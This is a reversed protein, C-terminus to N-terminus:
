NLCCREKKNDNNIIELIKKKTCKILLDIDFGQSYYLARIAVSEFIPVRGIKSAQDARIIAARPYTEMFFIKKVSKMKLYFNFAGTWVDVGGKL